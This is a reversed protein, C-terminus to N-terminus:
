RSAKNTKEPESFKFVLDDDDLSVSESREFVLRIEDNAALFKRLAPGVYSNCFPLPLHGITASDVQITLPMEASKGAAPLGEARFVVPLTDFMKAFVLMRIRDNEESFVVHDLSWAITKNEGSKLFHRSFLINLEDMSFKVAKFLRPLKEATCLQLKFLATEEKKKYDNTSEDPATYVPLDWPVLAAAAIGLLALLVLIKVIRSIIKAAEKGAEGAKKLVVKKEAKGAKKEPSVPRSPQEAATANLKEGCNCCFAAGKGNEFGCKACRIKMNVDM